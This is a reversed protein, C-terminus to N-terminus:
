RDDRNAADNFVELEPVDAGYAAQCIGTKGNQTNAGRTIMTGAGKINLSGGLFGSGAANRVFHTGM